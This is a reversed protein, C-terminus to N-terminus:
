TGPEEGRAIAVLRDREDPDDRPALLMGEVAPTLDTAVVREGPLIGESLCAFEDQVFDVEVERVRLREEDDVVYVRAGHLAARPVLNCGARPAGRLEVEVHLGPLLPPGRRESRRRPDDIEIVAGVTRTTPEVGSFRRFRGTWTAEVGQTELRVIAEIAATGRSPVSTPSAGTGDTPENPETPETPETPRDSRRALLPGITGIPLHAPIEVVDVGDGVVLVEGASVAQHLAANVERLRMTFPAVIETKALELKAGEVGAEYEELQAQLVRRSAPLEVLTNQIAQVAKETNLLEREAAEVDLLPVNGQDYLGRLRELDRLAMDRGREEVRLNARASKERAALEGIQARVARVTSESRSKQLEFSGPDIRFLPTGAQITRGVEVASDLEVIRGSVEAVGQWRQQSEVVGYGLARPVAEVTTVEVVRVPRGREQPPRQRPEPRLAHLWFVAASAIAVPTLFAGLRVLPARLKSVANPFFGM